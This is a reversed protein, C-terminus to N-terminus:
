RTQVPPRSDAMLRDLERQARDLNTIDHAEIMECEDRVMESVTTPYHRCDNPRDTYIKCTYRNQGEAKELWPCQQLPEGSTPHIWIKGNRAYERVTPNYTEWAAIEDESVDLGQGGYKICCKGCGNCAKM